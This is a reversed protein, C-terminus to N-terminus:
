PRTPNAVRGLFLLCGTRHEYVLFLFPRDVSFRVQASLPMFGVTTVAAAQTGEEDVTITGQHKFQTPCM